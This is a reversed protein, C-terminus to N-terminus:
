QRPSCENPEAPDMASGLQETFFKKGSEIFPAGPARWLVPRVVTAVQFSVALFLVLWLAITAKGAADSLSQSVFRGAFFLATCWAAIHLWVVFSISNSSVSFLWSIPMFGVLLLGLLGSFGALIIFFRRWTLKAGALSSFVFLSPACLAVSGYLILPAKITSALVQWGGQFCGSAAGYAAACVLSGIFLTLATRLEDTDRSRAMLRDPHQLLEVLPAVFGTPASGPVPSPPPMIQSENSM